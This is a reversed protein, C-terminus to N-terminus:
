KPFSNIPSVNLTGEFIYSMVKTPQIDLREPHRPDARQLSTTGAPAIYAQDELTPSESAGSRKKQSDRRYLAIPNGLIKVAKSGVEGQVKRETTEQLFVRFSSQSEEYRTCQTDEEM